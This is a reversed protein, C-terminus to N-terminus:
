PLGSTRAQLLFTLKSNRYPVHAERAGLAAIVDGLAALSKNIAQPAACVLMTHEPGPSHLTLEGSDFRAGFGRRIPLRQGAETYIELVGLYAPMRVGGVAGRGICRLVQTEKLRGGEAQSRALRESGALDVLNLCGRLHQGTSPNAGSIDLMFVM